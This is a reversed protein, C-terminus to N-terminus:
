QADPQSKDSTGEIDNGSKDKEQLYDSSDKGQSGVFAGTAPDSSQEGTPCPQQGQDTLTESDEAQGTSAQGGSQSDTASTQSESGTQQQTPQQDTPQGDSQQTKQQDTPQQSASPNGSQQQGSQQNDRETTM